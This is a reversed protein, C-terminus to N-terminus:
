RLARLSWLPVIVEAALLAALLDRDYLAVLEAWSPAEACAQVVPAIPDEGTVTVVARGRWEIADGSV